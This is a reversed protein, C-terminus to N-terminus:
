NEQDPAMTFPISPDKSPAAGQALRSRETGSLSFDGNLLWCTGIGNSTRWKRAQNKRKGMLPGAAGTSRRVKAEQGRPRLWVHPRSLMQQPRPRPLRRSRAGRFFFAKSLPPPLFVNCKKEPVRKEGNFSLSNQAASNPRAMRRATEPHRLWRAEMTARLFAKESNANKNISEIAFPKGRQRDKDKRHPPLPSFFFLFPRM